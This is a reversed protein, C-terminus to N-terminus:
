KEKGRIVDYIKKTKKFITSNTIREFAIGIKTYQEITLGEGRLMENTGNLVLPFGIVNSVPQLILGNLTIEVSKMPLSLVFGTFNLSTGVPNNGAVSGCYNFFMAGLYTSGVFTLPAKRVIQFGTLGTTKLVSVARSTYAMPVYNQLRWMMKYIRGQIGTPQVLIETNSFFDTSKKMAAEPTIGFSEAVNPIFQDLNNLFLSQQKSDLIITSSNPFYKLGNSTEGMHCLITYGDPNFTKFDDLLFGSIDVKCISSETGSKNVISLPTVINASNLKTKFFRM